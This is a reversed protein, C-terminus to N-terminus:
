AGPVQSSQLEHQIGVALGYELRFCDVRCDHVFPFPRRQHKAERAGVEGHDGLVETKLLVWFRPKPYRAWLTRVRGLYYFQSFLPLM